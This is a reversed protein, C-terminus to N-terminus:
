ATTPALPQASEVEGWLEQFIKDIKQEIRLALQRSGEVLSLEGEAEAVSAAVLQPDPPFPIPISNLAKQNLKPQAAGTVFRDIPVSNLYVEVYKQTTDRRRM